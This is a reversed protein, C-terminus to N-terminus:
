TSTIARAMETGEGDLGDRTVGDSLVDGSAQNFSLVKGHPHSHVTEGPKGVGKGLGELAKLSGNSNVNKMIVKHTNM